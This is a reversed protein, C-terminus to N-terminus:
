KSPSATTQHQLDLQGKLMEERKCREGEVNAAAITVHAADGDIERGKLSIQSKWYQPKRRSSPGSCRIM